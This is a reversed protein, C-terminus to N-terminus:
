AAREEDVQVQFRIRDRELELKEKELKSNRRSQYIAVGFSGILAAILAAVVAGAFAIWAVPIATAASANQGTTVPTQTAPTTPASIRLSSISTTFADAYSGNDKLM